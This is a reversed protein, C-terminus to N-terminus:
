SIGRTHSFWASFNFLIFIQRKFIGTAAIHDSNNGFMGFATNETDPEQITDFGECVHIYVNHNIHHNEDLFKLFDDVDDSIIKIM